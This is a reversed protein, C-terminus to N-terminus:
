RKRSPNKVADLGDQANALARIESASTPIDNPCTSDPLLDLGCAPCRAPTTMSAQELAIIRAEMQRLTLLLYEYGHLSVQQWDINNM